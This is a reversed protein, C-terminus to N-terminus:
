ASNGGGRTGREGMFAVDVESPTKVLVEIESENQGDYGVM